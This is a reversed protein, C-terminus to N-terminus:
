AEIQNKLKAYEEDTFKRGAIYEDIDRETPLRGHKKKFGEMFVRTDEEIEPSACTHLARAKIVPIILNVKKESM